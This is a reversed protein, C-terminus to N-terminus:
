GGGALTVVKPLAELKGNIRYLNTPLPANNGWGIAQDWMAEVLEKQFDDGRFRLSSPTPIVSEAKHM